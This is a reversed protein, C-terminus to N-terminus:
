TSWMHREIRGLLSDALDIPSLNDRLTAKTNKDTAKTNNALANTNAMLAREMKESSAKRKDLQEKRASAIDDQMGTFNKDRKTREVAFKVPSFYETDGMTPAAASSKVAGFNVAIAEMGAMERMANLPILMDRVGNETLTVLGNWMVAAGYKIAEFAFNFGNILYNATGIVVNTGEETRIVIYDWTSSLTEKIVDWNNVVEKSIGILVGFPGGLVAALWKGKEGLEDWKNWLWISYGVLVGVGLIILGIPNAYMAANLALQKITLVGMAIHLAGYASAVGFVIPEIKSWNDIVYSSFDVVNKAIKKTGEYVKLLRGSFEDAWKAETGKEMLAQIGYLDERISLFLPKTLDALMQTGTEKINELTYTFTSSMEQMSGKFRGQLGKFLLPIAKEAFLEGRESMKMVEATSKGMEQALIRWAPVGREALQNIEEASVKGKSQIQGIALAIGKFEDVTGGTAAVADGLTYMIPILGEGAFGMGLMIKAADQLGAFNFPSIAALKKLDLVMNKAAAASGLLIDFSKEATEAGANAKIGLGIAATGMAATAMGVVTAANKAGSKISDWTQKGQRELDQLTRRYRVTGSGIRNLISTVGDRLRLILSVSGTSVEGGAKLAFLRM